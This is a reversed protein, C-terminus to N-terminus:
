SRYNYIKHKCYRNQQTLIENWGADGEKRFSWKYFYNNGGDVADCLYSGFYVRPEISGGFPSGEEYPTGPMTQGKMTGDQYVKTVSVNNGISFIFVDKNGINPQPIPCPIRQDNLYIDVETNCAYDWYTGCGLWPHYVTTWAGNIYYEVWFYLDPKDGFCYYWIDTEFWGSENTEVVAVEDCRLFLSRISCWYPYFVQYNDIM